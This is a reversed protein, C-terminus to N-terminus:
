SRRKRHGQEDVPVSDVPPELACGIVVSVDGGLWVVLMLVGRRRM